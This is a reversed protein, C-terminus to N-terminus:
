PATCTSGIPTGHAAHRFSLLPAAVLLTQLLLILSQTTLEGLTFAQDGLLGLANCVQFTLEDQAQLVRRRRGLRGRGITQSTALAFATTARLTSALGSPLGSM